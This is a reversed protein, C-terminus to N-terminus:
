EKVFLIVKIGCQKFSKKIQWSTYLTELEQDTFNNFINSYFIYNNSSLNKHRFGQGVGNLDLDKQLGINPFDTGIENYPINATDIYSIMKNRLKYYPWHAITADWGQAIKDPYIWFNGSFLLISAIIIWRKFSTPNEKKHKFFEFLVVFFLLDFIFFAPLLYRHALLSKHLLMSPTLILLSLLFFVILSKLNLSFNQGRKGRGRFPLAMRLKENIKSKKNKVDFSINKIFLYCLIIWLFVRGFDLMRWSLILSNKLIGPFAVKEFSEAWSSGEYYGIWGTHLYHGLLFLFAAAGAPIYRISIKLLNSVYIKKEGKSVRCGLLSDEGAFSFKSQFKLYYFYVQFLFLLLVCMMGRLSILALGCLLLIQLFKRHYLIAYLSGSFFFFLVIDPSVLVAQGLFVADAWLLLLLWGAHKEGVFYKGIQYVFLIIGLLFPLMAFHSVALSKGFLKWCGAIYMGFFPPHGSDVVPPLFFTSFNGDFYHSAHLSAFQITDWFFAHDRAAFTLLIALLFFPSCHLFITKINHQSM